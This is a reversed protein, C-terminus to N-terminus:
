HPDGPPVIPMQEIQDQAPRRQSKGQIPIRTPIPSSTSTPSPSKGEMKDVLSHIMAHQSPTAQAMLLNSKTDIALRVPAGALATQLVKLVANPDAVTIPYIQIKLPGNMAEFRNVQERHDLWWGVALGAVVTLWLLDRISFRFRMTAKIAKM